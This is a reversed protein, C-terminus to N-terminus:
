KSTLKFLGGAVGRVDPGIELGLTTQANYRAPISERGGVVKSIEVRYFGCAAGPVDMGETRMEALGRGDTTGTAAKINSGLFAEPKMTVTANQLPVDDLTVRIVTLILGIRSKEYLELREELEAASLKGDPHVRQLYVNLGPCGQVEAADLFGDKNKDFEAMAAATAGKPDVSPGRVRATGSSCGVLAAAALSPLLGAVIWATKGTRIQASTL